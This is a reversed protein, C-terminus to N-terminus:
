KALEKLLKSFFQVYLNGVEIRINQDVQLRMRKQGWDVLGGCWHPALDTTFAATKGLGYKGVVLLPNQKHSVNEKVKLLVQTNKKARVENYGILVPSPKFSIGQLISSSIPSRQVLAGSALNHRDDRNLCTVPLINEIMSKKYGQNLGNFSGWGGIMILGSGKKVECEIWQMAALSLNRRPYDSLIILSFSRRMLSGTLKKSPEIHTISFKAYKLIGLLYCAPGEKPGDGLYLVTKM